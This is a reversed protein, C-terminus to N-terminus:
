AFTEVFQILLRNLVYKSSILDLSITAVPTCLPTTEENRLKEGSRRRGCSGKGTIMAALKFNCRQKGTFDRDPRVAFPDM